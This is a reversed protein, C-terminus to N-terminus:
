GLPSLATQFVERKAAANVLRFSLAQSNAQAHILLSQGRGEDLTPGGGVLQAYPLEATAPLHAWSHTHGSIVMQAGWRVLSSHWAERGRRSWSDYGKGAADYTPQNEVKWRLPIHCFVLRYPATKLHPKEIEQALWAAQERILPEFSVLGLFLPHDDPKDEGTDLVIGAVPGVRFSYFPRNGPFAVCGAVASAAPGRVDHNGRALLIPPGEALNVGGKPQLYLGPLAAEDNLYNGVDGNWFLFDSPEARTLEALRALTAPRDHTDNWICFRTESAAPDPVRFTYARSTAVELKALAYGKIVVPRTYTRFWYSRGPQLGSLRVRLVQTAHPVFGFPDTRVIQGPSQSDREGYEVWGVSPQAVPWLIVVGDPTPAYVAPSDPVVPPPTPTVAPANTAPSEAGLAPGAIAASIGTAGVQHLFRRRNMNPLGTVCEPLLM